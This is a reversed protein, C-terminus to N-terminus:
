KSLQMPPKDLATTFTCCALFSNDKKRCFTPNADVSSSDLGNSVLPLFSFLALLLTAEDGAGEPLRPRVFIGAWANKIEKSSSSLWSRTGRVCCWCVSSLSITMYLFLSSGTMHGSATDSKSPDEKM